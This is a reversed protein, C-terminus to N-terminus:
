EVFDSMNVNDVKVFPLYYIDDEIDGRHFQMITEAIHECGLYWVANIQGFEVLKLTNTDETLAFIMINSLYSSFCTVIEETFKDNFSIVACPIGHTVIIQYCEQFIEGDDELTHIIVELENSNESIAQNLGMLFSQFGTYNLDYDAAFLEIRNSESEYGYEYLYYGMEYGALYYDYMVLCDAETEIEMWSFMLVKIERQRAESILDNLAGPFVEWLIITDKNLDILNQLQLRQENENGEANLVCLNNGDLILKEELAYLIDAYYDGRYPLLICIDAYEVNSMSQIYANKVGNIIVADPLGFVKVALTQRTVNYLELVRETGSGSLKGTSSGNITINDVTLGVPDNDFVLNIRFTNSAELIGETFIHRLRVINTIGSGEFVNDDVNIFQNPIDLTTLATCDKFAYNGIKSVSDSLTIDSLNVCGSFAYSDIWTVTTPLEFETFGSCHYFMGEPIFTIGSPLKVETMDWCNEFIYVGLNIISDPIIMSELNICDNFAGDGIVAIGEPLYVNTLNYCKNFVYKGISHLGYPLSISSLNSCGSFAFEGISLIEFDGEFIIDNLGYCDTFAYDAIVKVNSPITISSILICSDFAREDIRTVSEPITFNGSKAEPCYILVSKDKNFLVGNYSSYAINANAVNISTLTSCRFFAGYGIINVGVPIVIETLASCKYFAFEGIYDINDHLHVATLKNCSAFASDRITTVTNPIVLNGTYMIPCAIIDTKAKNYLIGDVCSFNNNSSEVGITELKVCDTFVNNGISIVSEPIMIEEIKTGNFAYDKINQLQSASTFTIHELDYCLYFAKYGITVISDPIEVNYIYSHFAFANDAIRKVPVGGYSSPIRLIPPLDDQYVNYSLSVEYATENDLFKYTFLETVIEDADWIIEANCESRWLNSWGSLASEIGVMHITQNSAWGSFVGEGIFSLNSFISIVNLKTCNAFAYNGLHNLMYPVTISRLSTCGSFAHDGIFTVKSPIEFPAENKYNLRSCGYFAMADITTLNSNEEFTVDTLASCGYFVGFKLEKVNAPIEIKNLGTCYSFAKEGINILKSENEFYIKRLNTCNFFAFDDILTTNSPIYVEALEACNYFANKGISRLKSKNAFVVKTLKNCSYFARSGINELSAPLEVGKVWGLMECDEFASEGITQLRSGSEFTINWLGSGYFAKKGINEIIGGITVNILDQRNEFASEGIQTVKKGNIFLPIKLNPYTINLGDISIENNGIYSTEFPTGFEVNNLIYNHIDSDYPELIHPIPMPVNASARKDFDCNSDTFEKNYVKVGHYGKAQQSDTDVAIDGPLLMYTTTGLTLSYYPFGVVFSVVAGARIATAANDEVWDELYPPKFILKNLYTIDFTGSIAHFKIHNNQSRVTNWTNKRTELNCFYYDHGCEGTICKGGVTNFEDVGLLEVIGNDYTSGNYPTGISVLSAVNKPHNIAYDMNILGGRSHGILNLRPLSGCWNLYEQSISDIMFHLNEYVEEQSYDEDGSLDVIILSHQFFDIIKYRETKVYETSNTKLTYENYVTRQGNISAEYLRIGIPSTNRIKEIISDIDYHIDIEDGGYEGNENRGFNNSWHNVKGNLGHTFITITPKDFDVSTALTKSHLDTFDLDLKIAAHVNVKFLFLFSIFLTIMLITIIISKNSLFKKM